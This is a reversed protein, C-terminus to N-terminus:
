LLAKKSVEEHVMLPFGVPGPPKGEYHDNTGTAMLVLWVTGALADLVM